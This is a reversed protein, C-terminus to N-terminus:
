EPNGLKICNRRSKIIFRYVVYFVSLIALVSVVAWNYTSIVKKVYAINDGLYRGLLLIAAHHVLVSAFVAFLVPRSKVRFVGALLILIANVGPIFKSIFVAFNGYKEFLHEARERHKKDIYKKVFGFQFVRGGNVYGFRYVLYSGLMTGTVANCFVGLPNFASSATTVYGQFILVVDSPFPPFLLQLICSIFFFVYTLIINSDLIGRIFELVLVEM